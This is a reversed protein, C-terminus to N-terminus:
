VIGDWFNIEGIQLGKVAQRVSEYDLGHPLSEVVDMVSEDFNPIPTAFFNVFSVDDQTWDYNTVLADRLRGCMEGWVPFNVACAVAIPVPSEGTALERMVTPYTQTKIDPKYAKMEQMTVGLKPAMKTTLENFAIEEGGAMMSFFNRTADNVDRREVVMRFSEMDKSIV